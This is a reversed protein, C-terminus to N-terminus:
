GRRARRMKARSVRWDQHRKALLYLADSLMARVGHPNPRYAALVLTNQTSTSWRSLWEEEKGLFNYRALGREKAQRISEELLLKGPSSDRYEEDYGINLLWFAGASEVGYQAAAPRDGIYLIQLRLGGEGNAHYAYREFFGRRRPDSLIATGNRGKWGSAEIGFALSLKELLAEGDRVTVTESRVEGRREAKRRARRLDERVSRRIIPDRSLDLYPYPMSLTKTIWGARAFKAALRDVVGDGDPLRSLRIPYTPEAVISDTLLEMSDPDLAVLRNPEKLEEGGLLDIRMPRLPQESPKLVLPAAARMRGDGTVALVRLRHNASFAAAASDVWAFSQWPESFGPPAAEDWRTRLERLGSVDEIVQVAIDVGTATQHTKLM